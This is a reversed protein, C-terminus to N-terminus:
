ESENRYTFEKKCEVNFTFIHFTLFSYSPVNEIRKIPKVCNKKEEDIHM